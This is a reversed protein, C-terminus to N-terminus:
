STLYDMLFKIMKVSSVYLKTSGEPDNCYYITSIIVLTEIKELFSILYAIM